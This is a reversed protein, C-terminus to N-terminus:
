YSASDAVKSEIALNMLYALEITNRIALKQYVHARHRTAMALGIDLRAAIEKCSRGEAILLLVEAQRESLNQLDRRFKEVRGGSQLQTMLRRFITQLVAFPNHHIAPLDDHLNVDALEEDCIWTDDQEDSKDLDFAESPTSGSSYLEIQVIPTSDDVLLDAHALLDQRSHCMTVRCATSALVEDVPKENKAGDKIQLIIQRFPM